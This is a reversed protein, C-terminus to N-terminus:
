SMTDEILQSLLEKMQEIEPSPLVFFFNQVDPRPAGTNTNGHTDMYSVCSVKTGNFVGGVGRIQCYDGERGDERLVPVWMSEGPSINAENLETCTPLRGQKNALTQAEIWTMARNVKIKVVNGEEEEEEEEVEEEEEDLEDDPEGMESLLRKVLRKLHKNKKGIKKLLARKAQTQLQKKVEEEVEALDLDCDEFEDGDAGDEGDEDEDGRDFSAGLEQFCVADNGYEAKKRTCM